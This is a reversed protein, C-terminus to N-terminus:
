GWYGAPIQCLTAAQHVPKCYTDTASILASSTTSYSDEMCEGRRFFIVKKRGKKSTSKILMAKWESKVGWPEARNQIGTRARFPYLFPQQRVAKPAPLQSEQHGGPKAWTCIGEEGAQKRLQWPNGARHSASCPVQHILSSFSPNLPGM